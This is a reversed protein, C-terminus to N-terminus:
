DEIKFNDIYEVKLVDALQKLEEPMESEIVLLTNVEKMISNAALEAEMVAKYKVCQYIGRLLDPYDSIRSKVEVGLKMKDSEFYVDLRDGSLLLSETVGAKLFEKNIATPNACIYEKLRKHFEGEGSSEFKSLNKRIENLVENPLIAPMKLGLADLVWSYDYEHAEQIKGKVFSEKDRRSMQSYMSEVYDLGNSPLGTESNAILVNLTPIECHNKNELDKFIDDIFGLQTGLRPTKGNIRKNLEGYTHVKDWSYKAWQVLVPIMLKVLKDSRSGDGYKYAM